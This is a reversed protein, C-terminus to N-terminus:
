ILLRSFTAKLDAIEDQNYGVLIYVGVEGRRLIKLVRETFELYKSSEEKAPIHPYDWPNVYRSIYVAKIASIAGLLDKEARAFKFKYADFLHAINLALSLRIKVIKSLKLIDTPHIIIDFPYPYNEILVDIGNDNAREFIRRMSASLRQYTIKRFIRESYFFMGARLIVFSCNLATAVDLWFEIEELSKKQLNPNTAALNVTYGQIKMSCDLGYEFLTKKVKTIFEESNERFHPPYAFINIHRFGMMAVEEIAKIISRPYRYISCVGLMPM